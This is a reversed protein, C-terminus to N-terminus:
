AIKDIFIGRPIEKSGPKLKLKRALACVALLRTDKDANPGLRCIEMEGNRQLYLPGLDLGAKECLYKVIRGLPSELIRLDPATKQPLAGPATVQRGHSQRHADAARQRDEVYQDRRDM